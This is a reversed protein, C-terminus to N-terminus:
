CLHPLPRVIVPWEGEVPFLGQEKESESVWDSVWQSSLQQHGEGAYHNKTGLGVPSMFM